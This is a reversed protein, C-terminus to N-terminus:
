SRTWSTGDRGTDGETPCTLVYSGQDRSETPGEQVTWSLAQDGSERGSLTRRTRRLYTGEPPLTGATEVLVGVGM